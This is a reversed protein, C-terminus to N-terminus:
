IDSAKYLLEFLFSLANFNSKQLALLTTIFCYFTLLLQILIQLLLMLSCLVQGLLVILIIQVKNLQITNNENCEM